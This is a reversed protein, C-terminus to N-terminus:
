AEVQITVSSGGTSVVIEDGPNTSVVEVTAKDAVLTETVTQGNVDFTVETPAQPGKQTFTVTAATNGNAPITYRDTILTPNGDMWRGNGAKYWGVTPRPDLDTADSLTLNDEYWDPVSGMAAVRELASEAVEVTGGFGHVVVNGTTVVIWNRM